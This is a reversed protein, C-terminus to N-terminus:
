PTPPTARRARPARQRRADLVRDALAEKLTFVMAELATVKAELDAIQTAQQAITKGQAAIEQQQATMLMERITSARELDAIQQGAQTLKRTAVASAGRTLYGILGIAALLCGCITYILSLAPM